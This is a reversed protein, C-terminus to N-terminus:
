RRGGMRRRLLMRARFLLTKVTGVPREMVAAIEGVPMDHVHRLVFACRYALPLGRLERELDAVTARTIAVADPAHIAPAPRRDADDCPTERGRSRIRHLCLRYVISLLWPAFASGGRFRGLAAYARLFAEQAVDRAEELSGLLRRALAVAEREHREFLVTFAAHDDSV